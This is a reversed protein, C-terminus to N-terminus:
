IVEEYIDLGFILAIFNWNPLHALESLDLNFNVIYALKLLFNLCRIRVIFLLKLVYKLSGCGLPPPCFMCCLSM